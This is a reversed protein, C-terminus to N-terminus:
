RLYPTVYFTFFVTLWVVDVFHWYIGGITVPAHRHVDFYGLLNWVFLALLVILGAAVHLMHFGTITYYLSGYADTDWRYPKDLWEFVQVGIFAAGLLFAIGIGIASQARRGKKTGQEGWWVAVSSVLLIVTNPGSLRFSPMERPLFGPGDWVLLYYYSFQLYLFLSAETVILALMGYWGSARRGVSGVSTMQVIADDGEFTVAPDAM